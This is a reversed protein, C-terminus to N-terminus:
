SRVEIPVDLAKLDDILREAARWYPEASPSADEYREAFGRLDAGVPIAELVEVAFAAHHPPDLSEFTDDILAAVDYLIGFQEEVQLHWGGAPRASEWFSGKEHPQKDLLCGIACGKYGLAKAPDHKQYFGQVLADDARHQRMREVIKAKLEPDGHWAGRRQEAM